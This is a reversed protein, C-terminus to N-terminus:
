LLTKRDASHPESTLQLAAVRFPEHRCRTMKLRDLKNRGGRVDAEGRFRGFHQKGRFSAIPWFAVDAL